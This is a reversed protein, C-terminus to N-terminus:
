MCIVVPPTTCCYLSRRGFFYLLRMQLVRDVRNSMYYMNGPIYSWAVIMGWMLMLGM